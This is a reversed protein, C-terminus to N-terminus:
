YGVAYEYVPTGDTGTPVYMNLESPPPASPSTDLPLSTDELPLSTDELALSTYAPPPPDYTTRVERLADRVDYIFLAIGLFASLTLMLPPSASVTMACRKFTFCSLVELGIIVVAAFCFRGLFVELLKGLVQEYTCDGKLVQKFEKIM